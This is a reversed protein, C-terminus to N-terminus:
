SSRGIDKTRSGPQPGFHERRIKLLTIILWNLEESTFWVGQKLGFSRETVIYERIDVLTKFIGELKRRVVRIRYSVDKTPTKRKIIAPYEKILEEAFSAM